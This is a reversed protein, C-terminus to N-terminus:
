QEYECSRIITNSVKRLNKREVIKDVFGHELLFESRQFGEPLKQGITQEIVRPGAFGVLAGPEALIVDGLMAFSATVGGTTPDTLVTIYLLGAEDHKRLAASTKAMQMLSIIGEQMRAGGSCTFIIVPLRMETAREVARTIKEGVVEGMSGMMFDAGMVAIVVEKGGIEGKGTIVAEDMNTVSKQRELKKKYGPFNLPDSTEMREDWEQFTGKDLVMAIRNRPRVRFYSGCYACIYYNEIIDENYVPKGCSSCKQFLGEPVQYELLTDKAKRIREAQKKEQPTLTRKKFMEKLPM